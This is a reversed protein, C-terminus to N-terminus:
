TMKPVRSLTNPLLLTHKFTRAFQRLELIQDNKFIFNLFRSHPKLVNQM